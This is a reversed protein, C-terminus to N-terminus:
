ELGNELKAQVKTIEEEDDKPVYLTLARQWQFRAETRRGLKWYLDGLHDNIIPDAPLLSIAFELHPKAEEYRGLKFLAWGLSDAIYGDDPALQVAQELIGLAEELNLGRDVWSYGLYNLIHPNEPSYELAKKFDAEAQPWQDLMDHAIGRVYYITWLQGKDLGYRTEIDNYVAIAQKYRELGRLIEAYAYLLRADEVQTKLTELFSAAEEMRDLAVLMDAARISAQLYDPDDRGVTTLIQYAKQYQEKKDLINGITLPLGQLTPAIVQALRAFIMASDHGGESYILRAFDQLAAAYGGNKLTLHNSFATINPTQDQKLQEMWSLATLDPDETETMTTLIEKARDLNNQRIHYAIVIFSARENPQLDMVRDYTDGAKDTNGQAEYAMALHLIRLLNAGNGSARLDQGQALRLWDTLIPNMMVSLGSRRTDDLLDLAKQYHGNRILGASLVLNLLQQEHPSLADERAQITQATENAADFRGAGVALLMFQMDHEPSPTLGLNRAKEYHSLAAAWDQANQAYRRALYAGVANPPLTKQPSFVLTQLQPAEQRPMRDIMRQWQQQLWEAPSASAVM